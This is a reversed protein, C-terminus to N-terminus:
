KRNILVLGLSVLALALWIQPGIQEGLLLWGLLVALVPSLFSFSAVSSAKYTALLRFWLLYALAVVGIGQFALGALHIMSPDRLLAGFLPAALLLLPASLVLQSLLQMEASVRNLDTMRVTLAIGGWCIAAGLALLDGALSVTGGQRDFVALAVGGIALILGLVRPGNLREGPLFLHGAVALWIPMTYFLISARSVSTLDLSLYLMVFELTFLIGGLLGGFWAYRPFSLPIRKIKMWGLLFLLGILSRLGAQFIPNFGNGTVKIVVQNFALLSAIGLLAIAGTTDITRKQEMRVISPCVTFM